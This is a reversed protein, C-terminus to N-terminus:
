KTKCVTNALFAIVAVTALLGWPILWRIAIPMEFRYYAAIGIIITISAFGSGMVRCLRKTNYRQKQVVSSTNYGAILFSGKGLLLVVSLGFLIAVVVWAVWIPTNM